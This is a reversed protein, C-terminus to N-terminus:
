LKTVQVFDLEVPTARGFISVMIKDKHREPEIEKVKIKKVLINEVFEDPLLNAFARNFNICLLVDIGLDTILKAKEEFTTLIRLEKEPALVKMPHPDFTM